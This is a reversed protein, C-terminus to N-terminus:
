RLGQKMHKRYYTVSCGMRKAAAAIEIRSRETELWLAVRDAGNDKLVGVAHEIDARCPMKVAKSM